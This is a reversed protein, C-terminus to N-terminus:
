SDRPSPSTYLLCARLCAAPAPRGAGAAQRRATHGGPLLLKGETRQLPSNSYAPVAISTRKCPEPQWRRTASSSPMSCKREPHELQELDGMGVRRWCGLAWKTKNVAFTESALRGLTPRRTPKRISTAGAWAAPSMSCSITLWSAPGSGCPQGPGKLRSEVSLTDLAAGLDGDTESCQQCQHEVLRTHDATLHAFFERGAKHADILEQETAM